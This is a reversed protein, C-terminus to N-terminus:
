IQKTHNVIFQSNNQVVDTNIQKVNENYNCLM